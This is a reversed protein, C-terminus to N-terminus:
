EREADFDAFTKKEGALRALLAAPTWREGHEKAFECVRQHIRELGVLGAHFMPGGRWAPFGYGSLYVIDIDVARAARGEELVRAGENILAYVCREVIEERSIERQAIGAEVATRRILELVVPDATAKRGDEYRYWGAGTKQGYRGMEYLKDAVLPRRRGPQEFLHKFEQKVRWMVDIGAMDDVGFIGMAMGFDTLAADVQEPTAGEEVLFQAESMYPFMMRNGVFGFGNGVVVGVKKLAKATAMATALVRGDTATGRVVEVLRMVNAPSFFHLGVVMQPRGTSQAIADVDLTSTNTALVCEPKAVRDLEAFVQKKLVLSEFVAEVILDAQEFGALGSQMSIRGVRQEMADQTLRGRKISAEYNKRIVGLGRELAEPSADTVRVAFGANAFAMAIGGGMTGAGVIAVAKVPYPATDKPLGPVKAVTREGFFAHMLAKAQDSHGLKQFIEKERQIGAAFDLAAAAEVADIVALPAIQHRRTKKIQERLADLPAATVVRERTKPPVSKLRDIEQAFATAGLLLDGTVIHDVLGAALADSASIPDGTACMEAAKLMGVLRPLRQTGAAGPIIGLKTEPLGLQAEATAVRYHGAMALELGGGLASGHIAMVVPKGSDEVANLMPHLDPLSGKGYAAKELENIDAGAVFTRGGGIIVIAGVAPDANAAHIATEIGEPVGHSLANVPPNNITIIGVGERTSLTVFSDM